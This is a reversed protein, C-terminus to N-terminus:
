TLRHDFRSFFSCFDSVSDGAMYGAFYGQLLKAPYRWARTLLRLEPRRPELSHAAVAGSVGAESQASLWFRCDSVAPLGDGYWYSNIFRTIVLLGM